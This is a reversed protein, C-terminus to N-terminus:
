TKKAFLKSMDVKSQKLLDISLGHYSPPPKYYNQSKLTTKMAEIITSHLVNNLSINAEYFFNDVKEKKRSNL